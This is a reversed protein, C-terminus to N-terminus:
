ELRRRRSKGTNGYSRLSTGPLTRGARRHRASFGIPVITFPKPALYQLFPLQVELSHENVHARTSSDLPSRRAILRESLKTENKVVGLPTAFDEQSLYIKEPVPHHMPGFVLIVDPFGHELLYAFSFSATPGSFSYGAHPSVVGVFSDVIGPESPERQRPLESGYGDRFSHEISDVLAKKGAPYFQGAVVPNRM